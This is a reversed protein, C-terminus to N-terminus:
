SRLPRCQMQRCAQSRYADFETQNCRRMTRREFTKGAARDRVIECGYTAGIFRKKEGKCACWYPTGADAPSPQGVATICALVVAFMARHIM